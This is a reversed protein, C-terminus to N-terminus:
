SPTHSRHPHLELGLWCDGTHGYVPTGQCVPCCNRWDILVLRELLRALPGRRFQIRTGSWQLRTLREALRDADEARRKLLTLRFEDASSGTRWAESQM